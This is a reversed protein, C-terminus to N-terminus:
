PYEWSEINQPTGISTTVFGKANRRNLGALVNGPGLEMFAEVGQDLMCSISETWRVPSTLQRVLLRRASEGDATPRATVNSIIPFGPSSFPTEELGARLGDEATKMLPSHFAGSVNLPIVRRAGAEKLAEMARELASADGSVVVQGASNFNAPVVVSNEESCSRCVRTVTEDELGLVAAMTGPRERGAAFMLEGRLRVARLADEFELTGAAVHASFEGLSHGAGLIVNPLRDTMVSHVAVSHVLIAPQANQTQTLEDASGEWMLASLSVGLVDDAREFILAAHPFSRALDRGM